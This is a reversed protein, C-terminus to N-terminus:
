SGSAASSETAGEGAGIQRRAEDITAIIQVTEDHGHVPSEVRGDGVFSAFAEAEYHLGLLVDRPRLRTGCFYRRPWRALGRRRLVVRPAAIFPPGM